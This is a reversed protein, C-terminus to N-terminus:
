EKQSDYKWAGYVVAVALAAEIALTACVGAIFGKM